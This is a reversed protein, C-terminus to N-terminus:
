DHGIPGFITLIGVLELDLDFYGAERLWFIFGKRARLELKVFREQERVLGFALDHENCLHRVTGTELLTFFRDTFELFDLILDTFSECRERLLFGLDIVGDRVGLSTHM